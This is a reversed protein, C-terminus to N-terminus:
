AKARAPALPETVSERHPTTWGMTHGGLLAIVGSFITISAIWFVVEVDIASAVFGLATSGLLGGIDWAIQFIATAGGRQNGRVRDLALALLGTHAAGLGVGGFVGAVLMIPLSDAQTLIWMGIGSLLLGPVVIAVRGLRDSLSGAIPRTVVAAAGSVLFYLGVNGLDREDSLLPLFASAAGFSFTVTLFISMPFVAPRPILSGPTEPLALKPLTGKQAAPLGVPLGRPRLASLAAPLEALRERIPKTQQTPPEKLRAITLITLGATVAAVIFIADFGWTDAIVVGLAPFIMQALSTSMGFFGVGEGRRPLPALEAVLSGAATPFMAMGIGQVVRLALLSWIDESWVMLLLAIAFIVLAIRMLRVRQGRDSWRGAFPRLFLPILNFGGVILGIHWEEGGIEDVYEPLVSLLYFFSGFFTFTGFLTLIYDATWLRPRPAANV